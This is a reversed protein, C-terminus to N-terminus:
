FLVEDRPLVFFYSRSSESVGGGTLFTVEKISASDTFTHEMHWVEKRQGETFIEPGESVPEPAGRPLCHAIGLRM